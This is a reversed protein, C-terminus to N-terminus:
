RLSSQESSMEDSYSQANINVAYIDLPQNQQAEDSNLKRKKRKAPMENTIRSFLTSVDFEKRTEEVQCLMADYLRLLVLADCAAYHLQSPSLPRRNWDSMQEKKVLNCNLHLKVLLKLSLQQGLTPTLLPAFSNAELVPYVGKFAEMYPYHKRLGIFDQSLSQGVKICKEDSLSGRLLLDLREMNEKESKLTKLDIVFVFERNEVTRIAIQIISVPFVMGKKFSPKTETDIGMLKCNPFLETMKDLGKKGDIMFLDSPKLDFTFPLMQDRSDEELKVRSYKKNSMIVINRVRQFGQCYKIM